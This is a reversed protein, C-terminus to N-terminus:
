EATETTGNMGHPMASSLNMVASETGQKLTVIARKYSKGATQKKRGKSSRKSKEEGTVIGIRLVEANFITKLARIIMPKTAQPHVELVVQKFIRTLRQAKPTVRPRVIVDYLNIDM